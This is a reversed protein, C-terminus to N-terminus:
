YLKKDKLSLTEKFRKILRSVYAHDISRDRICKMLDKLLKMLAEKVNGMYFVIELKNEDPLMM